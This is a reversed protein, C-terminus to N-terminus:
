SAGGGSGFIGGGADPGTGPVVTLRAPEDATEASLTYEYGRQDIVRNNDITIGSPLEGTEMNPAIHSVATIRESVPSGTARHRTYLESFMTGIAGLAASDAAEMARDRYNFYRPLAIASLIALIVMVAVLEILTFAARAWMKTSNKSRDMCRIDADQSRRTQRSRRSGGRQRTLLALALASPFFFLAAITAALGPIFRIPPLANANRAFHHDWNTLVHHARNVNFAPDLFLRSAAALYLMILFAACFTRLLRAERRWLTIALLPALYAHHSTAIWTWADAGPLYQAMGVPFRHTTMGVAFDFMWTAHLAAIAVFATALLDVSRLLFGAAALALAVHSIWLLEPELGRSTKLVVLLVLHALLLAAPWRPVPGKRSTAPHTPAAIATM